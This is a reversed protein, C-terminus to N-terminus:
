IYIYIYLSSFLFWIQVVQWLFETLFIIPAFINWISGQGLRWDSIKRCQIYRHLYVSITLHNFPFTHANHFSIHLHGWTIQDTKCWDQLWWDLKPLWPGVSPRRNLFDQFSFVYPSSSLVAHYPWSFFFNHTLIATKRWRGTETESLGVSSKVGKM